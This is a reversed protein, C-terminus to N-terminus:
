QFKDSCYGGLIVNISLQWGLSKIQRSDIYNICIIMFNTQYYEKYVSLTNKYSKKMTPLLYFPKLL